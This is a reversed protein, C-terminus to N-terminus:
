KSLRPTSLDSNDAGFPMRRRLNKAVNAQLITSSETDREVAPDADYSVINTEPSRTPLRLTGRGYNPSRDDSSQYGPDDSRSDDTVSHHKETDIIDM